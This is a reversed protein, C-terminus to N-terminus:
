FMKIRTSSARIERAYREPGGPYREEVGEGFIKIADDLTHIFGANIFRKSIEFVAKYFYDLSLKCVEQVMERNTMGVFREAIGRDKFSQTPEFFEKKRSVGDASKIGATWGWRVLDEDLYFPYCSIYMTCVVEGSSIRFIDNGTFRGRNFNWFFGPNHYVETMNKNNTWGQLPAYVWEKENLPLDSMLESFQQAYIDRVMRPSTLVVEELPEIENYLQEYTKLFKV